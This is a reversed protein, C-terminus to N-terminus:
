QGRGGAMWIFYVSWEYIGRVKGHTPYKIPGDLLAGFSLLRRVTDDLDDVDFHLFPSYGTTCHAESCFSVSLNPPEAPLWPTNLFGNHNFLWIRCACKNRRHPASVLNKM